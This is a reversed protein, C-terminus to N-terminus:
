PDHKVSTSVACPGRAFSNSDEPNSKPKTPTDDLEDFGFPDDAKEKKGQKEKEGQKEEENRLRNDADLKKSGGSEQSENGSRRAKNRRRTVYDTTLMWNKLDAQNKLSM